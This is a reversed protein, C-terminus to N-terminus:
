PVNDLQPLLPIPYQMSPSFIAVVVFLQIPGPVHRSSVGQYTASDHLSLTMFLSLSLGAPSLDQILLSVFMHRVGMGCGTHVVVVCTISSGSSHAPFLPLPRHLEPTRGLLSRMEVTGTKGPFTIGPEPWWQSMFMMM